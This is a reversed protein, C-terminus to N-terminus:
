DRAARPILRRRVIAARRRLAACVLAAAILLLSGKSTGHAGISCGAGQGTSDFVKLAPGPTPTLAFAVIVTGAAVDTPLPSTLLLTNSRACFACRGYGIVDAAAAGSAATAGAAGGVGLIEVTGRTPLNSADVLELSMAGTAAAVAM